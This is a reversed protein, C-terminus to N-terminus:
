IGTTKGVPDMAFPVMACWPAPERPRRLRGSTRRSTSSSSHPLRFKLRRIKSPPKPADGIDEAYGLIDTLIALEENVTKPGAGDKKRQAKFSEIHGVTIQNLRLQELHGLM